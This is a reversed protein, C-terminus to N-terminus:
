PGFGLGVPVIYNINHVRAPGVGNFRPMLSISENNKSTRKLALRANSEDAFKMNSPNKPLRRKAPIDHVAKIM